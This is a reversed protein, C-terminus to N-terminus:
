VVSKRDEWQMNIPDVINVIAKTYQPHNNLPVEFHVGYELLLKVTGADHVEKVGENVDTYWVDHYIKESSLRYSVSNEFKGNSEHYIMVVKLNLYEENIMRTVPIDDEQLLWKNGVKIAGGRTEPLKVVPNKLTKNEMAKFADQITKIEEPSMFESPDRPDGLIRFGSPYEKDTVLGDTPTVEERQQCSVIFLLSVAAILVCLKKMINM